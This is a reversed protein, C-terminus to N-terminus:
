LTKFYLIAHRRGVFSKSAASCIPRSTMTVLRRSAAGWGFGFREQRRNRRIPQLDYLRPEVPHATGMAGLPDVLDGLNNHESDRRYCATPNKSTKQWSKFLTGVGDTSLFGSTSPEAPFLRRA